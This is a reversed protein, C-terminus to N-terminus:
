DIILRSQHLEENSVSKCKIRHEKALLVTGLLLSFTMTFNNTKLTPKKKKKKMKWM